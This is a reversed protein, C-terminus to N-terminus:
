IYIEAFSVPALKMFTLFLTNGRQQKAAVLGCKYQVSIAQVPDPLSVFVMCIVYNITRHCLFRQRSWKSNPTSRISHFLLCDCSQESNNQSYGSKRTCVCFDWMKYCTEFCTTKASSTVLQWCTQFLCNVIQITVVKNINDPKNCPQELLDSVTM